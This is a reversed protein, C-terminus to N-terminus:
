ILIIILLFTNQLDLFSCIFLTVLFLLDCSSDAMFVFVVFITCIYFSGNPLAHDMTQGGPIVTYLIGQRFKELNLSPLSCKTRESSSKKRTAQVSSGAAYRPVYM